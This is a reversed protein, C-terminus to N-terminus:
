RFRERKTMQVFTIIWTQRQGKKLPNIVFHSNQRIKRLIGSTIPALVFVAFNDFFAHRVFHKVCLYPM